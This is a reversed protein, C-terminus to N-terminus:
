KRCIANDLPVHYPSTLHLRYITEGHRPAARSVMSRLESSNCSTLRGRINPSTASSSFFESAGRSRRPVSRLELSPSLKLESDVFSVLTVFLVRSNSIKYRPTSWVDSEVSIFRYNRKNCIRNVKRKKCIKSVRHFRKIRIQYRPLYHKLSKFNQLM